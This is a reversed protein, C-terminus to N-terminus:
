DYNFTIEIRRNQVRGLWTENDGVPQSFGHGEYSLRSAAIGKEVLYDVIAKARNESLVMNYEETGINDTHGDVKATVKPYRKM